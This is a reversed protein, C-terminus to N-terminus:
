GLGYLSPYLHVERPWSPKHLASPTLKSEAAYEMGFCARGDEATHCRTSQYMIVLPEKAEVKPITVNPTSTFAALRM